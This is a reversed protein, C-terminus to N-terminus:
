RMRAGQSTVGSRKAAVIVRGRASRRGLLNGQRRRIDAVGFIGLKRAVETEADYKDKIRQSTAANIVAEPDKHLSRLILALHGPEGPAKDELFWARYTAKSYEPCWGEEAALVGVRNALNEPDVPYQPPRVFPIGYGAARREIDRWMYRMKVPKGRFPINNQEIMIARVNFPRWRVRVRAQQAVEEIRMVTLYTYTSGYFFFFDLSDPM